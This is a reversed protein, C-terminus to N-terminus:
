VALPQGGYRSLFFTQGKGTVRVTRSIFSRDPTEIAHEVVQFLGREMARQTPMNYDSCQAKILYGDDRLREKFRQEGAWSCGAQRLVKCFERILVSDDSAEVAEAFRAKPRLEKTEQELARIRKERNALVENAARLARAMLEEPTEAGAPNVYAGNCRISPLVEHNVWRQFEIVRERAVPDKVFAAKRMMIAHYLGAESIIHVTRSGKNTSVLHTRVEDEDLARIMNAADRYGLVRAVDAAVLWPEGDITTIRLEGFDASSFKIVSTKEDM